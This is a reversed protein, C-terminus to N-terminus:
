RHYEKVSLLLELKNLHASIDLSELVKVCGFNITVTQKKAEEYRLSATSCAIPLERRLHSLVQAPVSSSQSLIKLDPTSISPLFALVPPLPTQSNRLLAETSAPTLM